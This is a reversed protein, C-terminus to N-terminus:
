PPVRRRHPRTRPALELARGEHEGLFTALSSLPRPWPHREQGDVAPVLALHREGGLLVEAGTVLALSSPPLHGDAGIGVVAVRWPEPSLRGM